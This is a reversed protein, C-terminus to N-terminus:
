IIVEYYGWGAKVRGDKDKGGEGFTLNSYDIDSIQFNRKLVKISM